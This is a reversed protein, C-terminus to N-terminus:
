LKTKFYEAAAYKKVHNEILTAYDIQHYYCSKSAEKAIDIQLKVIRQYANWNEESIELELLDYVDPSIYTYDNTSRYIDLYMQIKEEKPMPPASLQKVEKVPIQKYEEKAWKRYANMISSFYMCSFNEYANAEVELKGAIALDFALTIESCTHNPYNTVVNNILVAKEEDQPINNARIGVKLMALRLVNKIQEMPAKAIKHDQMADVFREDSTKLAPLGTQVQAKQIQLEM